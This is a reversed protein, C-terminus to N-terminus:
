SFAFGIDFPIKDEVHIEESCKQRSGVYNKSFLNYDFPILDYFVEFIYVSHIFKCVNVNHM